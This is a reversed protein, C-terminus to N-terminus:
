AGANAGQRKHLLQANLKELATVLAYAALLFM